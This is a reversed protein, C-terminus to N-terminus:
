ENEPSETTIFGVALAPSALKIQPKPLDGPSSFQLESWYEQRPFGMSVLLVLILSIYLVGVYLLSFVFQLYNLFFSTAFVISPFTVSFSFLILLFKFLYDPRMM